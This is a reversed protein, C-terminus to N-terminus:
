GGPPPALEASALLADSGVAADDHDAVEVDVDGVLEAVTVEEARHRLLHAVVGGEVIANVGVQRAPVDRLEVRGVESNM